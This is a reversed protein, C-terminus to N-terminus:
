IRTSVQDGQRMTDVALTIRASAKDEYVSDVQVKGKYNDGQWVHFTMGKTVGAASGQNLMVIGPEVDFSVGLLRGDIDAVSGGIVASAGPFETTIVELQTTLSAVESGLATKDMQLAAIRENARNLAEAADRRALEAAQAAAEADAQAGEAERQAEHARESADTAAAVNDAMVGMRENIGSIQNRLEANVEKEAKLLGEFNDSSAQAANKGERTVDRDLRVEELQANAEALSSELGDIEENTSEVLENYAEAASKQNQVLKYAYGFFAGALVLNILLFAIGIPKM